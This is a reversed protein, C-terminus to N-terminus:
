WTTLAARKWNNPGICIYIYGNDYTIQGKTGGATRSSPVYTNATILNAMTVVSQNNEISMAQYITNPTSAGDDATFFAINGGLGYAVNSGTAFFNISASQQFTNATGNGTFGISNVYGLFDGSHVPQVNSISTLDGRAGTVSYGAIGGTDFQTYAV